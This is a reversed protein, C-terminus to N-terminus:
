VRGFALWSMAQNGSNQLLVSTTTLSTSSAFNGAANSGVIVIYAATFATPFTVTGASAVPGWQIAFGGLWTPLIIYGNNALSYAVGFRLTAPTVFTIADTGANVMAQTAIKAVGLATTTAQVIYNTLLVGLTNPAVAVNTAASSNVEAQTAFRSIGVVSQTAGVLVSALKQTLKLPTVMTTDDTGATTMAQTAIKAFGAISETASVLVSALKQALKLPTVATSNDAGGIVQETTSLKLIGATAESAAGAAGNQVIKSIALSLQNYQGKTPTIGGAALVNLNEMMLMNMFEAPVITAPVGTAANGDTFYGPSGAPAPPPIAAVATSNDIQFM